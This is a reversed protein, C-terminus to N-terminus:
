EAEENNQIIEQLQQQIKKDEFNLCGEEIGKKQKQQEKNIVETCINELEHLTDKLIYYAVIPLLQSNNILNNLNQKFQQCQLNNM